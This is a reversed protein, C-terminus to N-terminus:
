QLSAIRTSPRGQRLLREASSKRETNRNMPASGRRTQVGSNLESEPAGAGNQALGQRIRTARRPHSVQFQDATKHSWLRATVCKV